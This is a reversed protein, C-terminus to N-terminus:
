LCLFHGGFALGDFLVLAESLQLPEEQLGDLSYLPPLLVLLFLIM